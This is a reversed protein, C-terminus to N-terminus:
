FSEIPLASLTLSSGAQMRPFWTVSKKACREVALVDLVLKARELSHEKVQICGVM